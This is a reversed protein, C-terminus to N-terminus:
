CMGSRANSFSTEQQQLKEPGNNKCAGAVAAASNTARAQYRLVESEDIGALTKIDGIAQKYKGVANTLINGLQGALQGALTTNAAGGNLMANGATQLPNYFNNNFADLQGSQKAINKADNEFTTFANQLASWATDYASQASACDANGGGGSLGGGGGGGGSGDDSCSFTWQVIQGDGGMNFVVTPIAVCVIEFGTPDTSNVPDGAAYAYRNWTQPSGSRGSSAKPDM